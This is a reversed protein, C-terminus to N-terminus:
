VTVHGSDARNGCVIRLRDCALNQNRQGSPPVSGARVPRRPGCQGPGASADAGLVRLQGDVDIDIHLAAVEAAIDGVGLLGHRCCTCTGARSGRRSSRGTRIDRLAGLRAQLDDNRDRQQDDKQQEVQIEPASVSVRITMSDTGNASTPPKQSIHQSPKLRLTATATPKMARAPTAASVPTTM